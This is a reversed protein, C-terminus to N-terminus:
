HLNVGSSSQPLHELVKNSLRVTCLCSVAGSRGPEQSPNRQIEGGFEYAPVQHDLRSLWLVWVLVFFHVHTSLEPLITVSTTTPERKESSTDEIFRTGNIHVAKATTM